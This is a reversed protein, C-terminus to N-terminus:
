AARLEPLGRFWADAADASVLTKRGLKVARVDGAKLLLYFKSKSVRYTKCFDDPTLVGTPSPTM